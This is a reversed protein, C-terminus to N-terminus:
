GRSRMSGSRSASSASEMLEKKEQEARKKYNALDAQARQWGALNEVAKAKLSTVENKLADLGEETEGTKVPNDLSGEKTNEDEPNVAM